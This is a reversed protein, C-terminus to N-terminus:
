HCFNLWDQFYILSGSGDNSSDINKPPEPKLTTAVFTLNQLVAPTVCASLLSNNNSNNSNNSSELSNSSISHASQDSPQKWITINGNGDCAWVQPLQQAHNSSPVVVLASIGSLTMNGIGRVVPLQQKVTSNPAKEPLLGDPPRLVHVIQLAIPEICVINNGLAFWVLLENPSSDTGRSTTLLVSHAINSPLSIELMALATKLNAEREFNRTSVNRAFLGHAPLKWIMIYQGNKYNGATWVEGNGAACM